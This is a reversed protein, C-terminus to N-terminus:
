WAASERVEWCALSAYLSLAPLHSSFGCLWSQEPAAAAVKPPTERSGGSTAYM